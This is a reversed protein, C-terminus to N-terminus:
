NSVNSGKIIVKEFEADFNDDNLMIKSHTKLEGSM